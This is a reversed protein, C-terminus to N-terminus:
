VSQEALYKQRQREKLFGDPDAEYAPVEDDNLAVRDGGTFLFGIHEEAFTLPLQQEDMVVKVAEDFSMDFLELTTHIM